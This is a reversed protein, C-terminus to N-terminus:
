AGLAGERRIGPLSAQSPPAPAGVPLEPQFQDPASRDLHALIKGILEPEEISSIVELRGGCRASDQIEIGFVRKLRREWSTAV